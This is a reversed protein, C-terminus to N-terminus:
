AAADRAATQMTTALLAYAAVWADEVESTFDDGLGQGLTWLLATGVTDYHEQTVGYGAHRVGLAQVAAVITDLKDLGGVAVAIMKMLTRSQEAIDNKFLPQLSPDITFLRDYFMVGAQEAIPTVAAFSTRVLQIQEPSM